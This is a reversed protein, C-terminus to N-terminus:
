PGSAAPGGQTLAGVLTHEAISENARAETDYWFSLNALLQNVEATLDLREAGSLLNTRWYELSMELTGMQIGIVHRQSELQQQQELRRQAIPLAQELLYRARPDQEASLSQGLALIEEELKEPTAHQVLGSLRQHMLAMRVFSSVLYELRNDPGTGIAREQGRKWILRRLESALAEVKTVRPRYAPDLGPLLPALEAARRAGDQELLYRIAWRRAKPSQVAFAIWVVEVAAAIILPWPSAFALSLVVAAGLWVLNYQNLVLVRTLGRSAFDENM